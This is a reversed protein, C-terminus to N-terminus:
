DIGWFFEQCLAHFKKLYNLENDTMPLQCRQDFDAWQKGTKSSKAVLMLVQAIIFIM